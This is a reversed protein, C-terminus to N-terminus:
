GNYLRDKIDRQCQYFAYPDVQLVRERYSILLDDTAEEREFNFTARDGTRDVCQLKHGYYKLVVAENLDSTTYVNNHYM